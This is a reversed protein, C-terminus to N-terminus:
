VVRFTGINHEYNFYLSPQDWNKSVIGAITGSVITTIGEAIFYNPTWSM